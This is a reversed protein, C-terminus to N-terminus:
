ALDPGYTLFREDLEEYTFAIQLADGLPALAEAIGIGHLGTWTVLNFGASLAVSRAETIVPMEWFTDGSAFLWLGDGADVQTLSNLFAPGAATVLEFAQAPADFAHISDFVGGLPATVADTPLTSGTYGVLNWGAFLRIERTAPSAAPEQAVGIPSLPGSGLAIGFALVLGALGRRM